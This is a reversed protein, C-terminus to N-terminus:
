RSEVKQLFDEIFPLFFDKQAIEEQSFRDSADYWESNPLFRHLAEATHRPHAENSGPRILTPVKIQSLDDDSLNALSLRESLMWRGWKRMIAAFQAPEM